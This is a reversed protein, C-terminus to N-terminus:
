GGEHAAQIEVWWGRSSAPTSSRGWGMSSGRDGDLGTVRGPDSSKDPVILESSPSQRGCSSFDMRREPRRRTVGAVGDTVPESLLVRNLLEHGGLEGDKETSQLM